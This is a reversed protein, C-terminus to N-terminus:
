RAPMAVTTKKPRVQIREAPIFASIPLNTTSLGAYTDLMFWAGGGDGVGNGDPGFEYNGSPFGSTPSGFTVM